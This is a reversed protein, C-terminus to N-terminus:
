DSAKESAVVKEAEVLVVPKEEYNKGAHQAIIAEAQEKTM